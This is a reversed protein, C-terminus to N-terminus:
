ANGCVDCVSGKLLTTQFTDEAFAKGRESLVHGESLITERSGQWSTLQPETIIGQLVRMIQRCAETAIRHADVSGFSTFVGACGAFTRQLDQGPAVLASVNVLGFEPDTRFLCNYCGNKGSFGTVLVHGGVGLPELWVHVRPVRDAVIQNIRREATEDGLAIAVLSYGDFVDPQSRLLSLVDGNHTDISIHPYKAHLREKLGQVKARGMDAAGLEHRQLNAAALSEKDVLQIAGIGSAGLMTALPSGVAGCGILAIRKQLLAPHGGGRKLLFPADLRNVIWRDVVERSAFALQRRRPAHRPRFGNKWLKANDGSPPPLHAAFVVSDGDPPVPQSMCVIAPLGSKAIWAELAEWASPDIHDRISRCAEGVTIVGNLPPPDLPSLLPLAFASEWGTVRHGTREAWRTASAADAAALRLTTPGSISAIPIEGLRLPVPCISALQNNSVVAWYANFETLRDRRHEETSLSLVRTARDLADRVLDEPRTTDLLVGTSPAICVKGNREVHALAGFEGEVFVEPLVDPFSAPLMARMRWTSGGATVTGRWSDDAGALFGREELASAARRRAEARLIELSV